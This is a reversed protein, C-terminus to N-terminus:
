QFYPDRKGPSTDRPHRYRGQPDTQWIEVIVGKQPQGKTDIVVGKLNLIDGKAQEALGAFHILDNDEDQQKTIPYFPGEYDSPTKVYQDQAYISQSVLAFSIVLHILIYLIQKGALKSLPTKAVNKFALQIKYM